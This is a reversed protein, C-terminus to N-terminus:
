RSKAAVYEEGLYAKIVEEDAAILHPEGEAIIKGFNMVYINESLNMIVQMIHEVIIITIGSNNIKKIIPLMQAVESPRLGAMVEDLLLIKPNTALSRCLELRKLEPLTLNKALVNKKDYLNLFKLVDLAIKEAEHLFNTQAFAGVMTNYLVTKSRFPRVVQFTRSIGLQCIEYPKKGGIEKNNFLISGSSLPLAGAICNFLTTKGAGNPGIIGVIQKDNIEMNVSNVATLGGFKKTLDKIKLLGM